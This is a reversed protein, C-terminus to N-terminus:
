MTQMELADEEADGNVDQLAPGGRRNATRRARVKQSVDFLQRIGTFDYVMRYVHVVALIAHLTYSFERAAAVPVLGIPQMILWALLTSACYVHMLLVLCLLLTNLAVTVLSATNHLTWGIVGYLVLIILLYIWAYAPWVNISGTFPTGFIIAVVLAVAFFAFSGLVIQLEVLKLVERVQGDWLTTRTSSM